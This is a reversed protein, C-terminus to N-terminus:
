NEDSLKQIEFYNLDEESQTIWNLDVYRESKNLSAKFELLEVPLPTAVNISAITIFKTANNPIHTTGINSVTIYPNSYSFVIGTGDGNYYCQTGGNAFNGDDDVLLRLDSVTVSGPIGCTSLKVDMNYNQNMNTRTVKWEKELRSYLSCSTLGTPI